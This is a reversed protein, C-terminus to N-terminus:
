GHNTPRRRHYTRLPWSDPTWNTTGDTHHPSVRQPHTGPGRLDGLEPLAKHRHPQLIGDTQHLPRIGERLNTSTRSRHYPSKHRQGLAYHPVGTHPGAGQPATIVDTTTRCPLEPLWYGGTGHHSTPPNGTEPHPWPDQLGRRMHVSPSRPQTTPPLTTAAMNAHSLGMIPPPASRRGHHRRMRVSRERVRPDALVYEPLPQVQCLILMDARLGPM